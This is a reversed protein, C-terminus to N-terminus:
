VITKRTVPSGSAVRVMCHDPTKTGAPGIGNLKKEMLGPVRVRVPVLVNVRLLVDMTSDSVVGVASAV